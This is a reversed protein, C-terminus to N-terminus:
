DFVRVKREDRRRQKQQQQQQQQGPLCDREERQRQRDEEDKSVLTLMNGPIVDGAGGRQMAENSDLVLADDTEDGDDEDDQEDFHAWNNLRHTSSSSPSSRRQQQRQQRRRQQQRTQRVLQRQRAHNDDLRDQRLRRKFVENETEQDLPLRAMVRRYTIKLENAGYYFADWLIKRISKRVELPDLSRDLAADRLPVVSVSDKSFECASCKEEFPHDHNKDVFSRVKDRVEELKGMAEIFFHYTPQVTDFGTETKPLPYCVGNSQQRFGHIGYNWYFVPLKRKDNRNQVVKVFAFLMRSSSLKMTPRVHPRNYLADLKIRHAEYIERDDDEFESGSLADPPPKENLFQTKLANCKSFFAEKGYLLSAVEEYTLRHTKEIEGTRNEKRYEKLFVADDAIEIEGHELKMTVSLEKM